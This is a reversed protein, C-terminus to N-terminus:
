GCDQRMEEVLVHSRRRDTSSQILPVRYAQSEPRYTDGVDVEEATAM